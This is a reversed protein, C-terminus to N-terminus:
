VRLRGMFVEMVKSSVFRAFAFTHRRKVGTVMPTSKPSLGSMHGLLQSVGTCKDSKSM